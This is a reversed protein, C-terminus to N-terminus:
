AADSQERGAAALVHAAWAELAAKTEHEWRHRQYVGTIGSRSGSVHNLITETVELRVGLRQLGTAVTRRIDHLVWPPTSGLAADLAVKMKGFGSVATKRPGEFVFVAGVRRRVGRLLEVAAPALPVVHSHHNKTRTGPLRWVAADLEVEDWRMGSVEGRRQGTLLLLRVLVGFPEPLDVAANYLTGIEADTLVRERPTERALPRPTAEWPSSVLAGRKVAWGWCSRAEARLRNAAVPGSSIKVADLVQVADARTLNAAPTQLWDKLGARIDRPARVRYSASRAALHHAAWDGILRDVSYATMAAAGKAEADAAERAAAEAHRESVPDRGERVRGRLTEARKRAQAQTVAGWAGLAVRRVKKGSRYQFVFLRKGSATIRLGFGPLVDDFLLADKQGVPCTASGVTKDSFKM